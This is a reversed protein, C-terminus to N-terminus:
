AADVLRIGLGKGIAALATEIQDIRTAHGARFLRDVQERHWGLRRGLEARTVGAEICANMLTVKAALLVPIQISEGGIIGDTPLPAPSWASLRAALAEGVADAVHRLADARDTGFSTVEPLQPCTALLTDGDQELRVGYRM